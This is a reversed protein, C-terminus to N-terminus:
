MMGFGSVWEVWGCGKRNMLSHAAPNKATVAPPMPLGNALALTQDLGNFSLAKCRALTTANPVSSRHVFLGARSAASLAHPSCSKGPSDSGAVHATPWPRAPSRSLAM